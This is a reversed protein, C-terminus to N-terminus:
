QLRELGGRLSLDVRRRHGHPFDGADDEPARGRPGGRRALWQHSVFNLREGRHEGSFDVPVVLGKAALTNHPELRTLELFDRMRMAYLPFGTEPEAPADATAHEGTAVTTVKAGEATAEKTSEAM